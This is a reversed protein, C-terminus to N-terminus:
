ASLEIRTSFDFVIWLVLYVHRCTQPTQSVALPERYDNTPRRGAAIDGSRDETNAPAPSLSRNLLRPTRRRGGSYALAAIPKPVHPGNGWMGALAVASNMLNFMSSIASAQRTETWRFTLIVPALFIGGGVGTIGSVLGIAGGTLLSFRFPPEHPTTLDDKCATRASRFMLGAAILLLVGVVPQYLAASLNIAGGVLSFPAGLIAFPYCTRWTMLGAQYFRICSIAAVLINLALATPKIISHSYGLLGMLAVYGTGGAQGVATYLFAIIAFLALLM